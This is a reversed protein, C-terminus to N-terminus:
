GVPWRRELWALLDGIVEDRNVEHFLEHRAEPYVHLEVDSLGSRERYARALREVSRGGGLSDAGGVQLLMPLDVPWDRSPRGLLRLADRYGFLKPIAAEFTLPDDVFRQVADPNRNLWEYGTPGGRFPKNLDGGNMWGPLRYASGTLIAGSYDAAHRDLIIQAMLSGWSHGLLVVPLGPHAAKAVVTFARIGETAARQGGPGLDGLKAHDGAHQELGTRGHGRHDDVYVAAGAAALREALEGYRLGHEGVGHAIQVAIRPHEPVWRSYHITVGYGDRFTADERIMPNM